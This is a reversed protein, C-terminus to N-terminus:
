LTSVQKFRSLSLIDKRADGRSHKGYVFRSLIGFTADLDNHTHGVKGRVIHVRQLQWGSAKACLLIHVVAYYVTYCVNDGAGDVCFWLDTCKNRFDATDALLNILHVIITCTLNGGTPVNPLTRFIYLSKIHDWMQVCTLKQRIRWLKELTKATSRTTPLPFKCSDAADIYFGFHNILVICIRSIRALTERDDSIDELHLTLKRQYITRKSVHACGLLQLKYYSCTSCTAFGKSRNTRIRVSYTSSTEPDTYKQLLVQRWLAKFSHASLARQKGHHIEKEYRGFLDKIGCFDVYLFTDSPSAQSHQVIYEGAFETM